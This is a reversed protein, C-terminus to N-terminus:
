KNLLKKYEQFTEESINEILQKQISELDYVIQNKEFEEPAPLHRIMQHHM